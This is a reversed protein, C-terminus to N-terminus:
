RSPRAPATRSRSTPATSRSSHRAGAGQRPRRHRRAHGVAGGRGPHQRARAGEQRRPDRRLRPRRRRAAAAGGRGQLTGGAPDSATLQEITLRDGAARARLALERLVLGSAVDQVSGGDMALTGDLAPQQLTGSLDLAAQLTGALQTGDLAALQAVKALDVPGAIKGSLSASDASRSLPPDLAFTAPLSARATLPETGLGSLSLDADLRGGRLTGALTGDLKVKAAPDLAM